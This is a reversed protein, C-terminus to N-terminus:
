VVSKRDLKRKYQFMSLTIHKRQKLKSQTRRLFFNWKISSSLNFSAVLDHDGISCTNSDTFVAYIQLIKRKIRADMKLKLDQLVNKEKLRRIAFSKWVKYASFLLFKCRFILYTEISKSAACKMKSEMNMLSKWVVMVNQKWAFIVLWRILRLQANVSVDRSCDSDWLAVFTRRALSLSNIVSMERLAGAFFWRAKLVNFVSQCARKQNMVRVKKTRCSVRNLRRSRQLMHQINAFAARLYQLRIKNTNFRVQDTQEIQIVAVRRWLLFSKLRCRFHECHLKDTVWWKTNVMHKWCRISKKCSKQFSFDRTFGKLYDKRRKVELFNCWKLFKLRKAKNQRSRTSRPIFIKGELLHADRTYSQTGAVLDSGESMCRSVVFGAEIDSYTHLSWNGFFRKLMRLTRQGQFAAVRRVSFYFDMWATLFLKRYCNKHHLIARSNQSHLRYWGQFFVQLTLKSQWYNDNARQAKSFLSDRAKGNWFILSTRATKQLVLGKLREAIIYINAFSCERQQTHNSIWLDLFRAMVGFTSLFIRFSKRSKRHLGKQQILARHTSSVHENKKSFISLRSQIGTSNVGFGLCVRSSWKMLSSRMLSFSHRIMRKKVQRIEMNEVHEFVPEQSLQSEPDGFQTMIELALGEGVDSQPCGIQAIAYLRGSPVHDVVSHISLIRHSPFCGLWRINLHDRAIKDADSSTLSYKLQHLWHLFSTRNFQSTSVHIRAISCTGGRIEDVSVQAKDLSGMESILNCLQARVESLDSVILSFEIGMLIHFEFSEVTNSMAAASSNNCFLCRDLAAKIKASSIISEEARFKIIISPRETEALCICIKEQNLRFIRICNRWGHLHLYIRRKSFRMVLRLSSGLASKKQRVFLHWFDFIRLLTLQCRSSCYRMVMLTKFKRRVASDKWSAFIRRKTRYGSLQYNSRTGNSSSCREGDVKFGASIKEAESFHVSVLDMSCCNDNRATSCLSSDPSASAQRRTLVILRWMLTFHWLLKRNIRSLQLRSCMRFHKKTYNHHLWRCLSSKVLRILSKEYMKAGFIFKRSQTEAYQRWFNMIPQAVKRRGRVKVSALIISKCTRQKCWHIWFYLVYKKRQIVRRASITSEYWRALRVLRFKRDVSIQWEVIIRRLRQINWNAFLRFSIAVISGLGAKSCLYTGKISSAVTRLTYKIRENCCGQAFSFLLSKIARNISSKNSWLHFATAKRLLNHNKNCFQMCNLVSESEKFTDADDVFSLCRQQSLKRKMNSEIENSLKLKTLELEELIVLLQHSTDERNITQTIDQLESQFPSHLICEHQVGADSANVSDVEYVVEATKKKMNM